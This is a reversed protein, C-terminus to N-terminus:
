YFSSMKIVFIHLFVILYHMYPQEESIKGLFKEINLFMKGQYEFFNEM